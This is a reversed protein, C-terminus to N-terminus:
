EVGYNNLVYKINKIKTYFVHKKINKIKHINKLYSVYQSPEFFL